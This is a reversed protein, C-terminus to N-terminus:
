ISKFGKGIITWDYIKEAGFALFMILKLALRFKEAPSYRVPSVPFHHLRNFAAPQRVEKEEM